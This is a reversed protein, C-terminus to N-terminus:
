PQCIFYPPITTSSQSCTQGVPCQSASSASSDCMRAQTNPDACELAAVCDVSAAAQNNSQGATVCCVTGAPYGAAVCDAAKSCPLPLGGNNSCDDASNDCTPDTTGGGHGKPSPICCVESSPDCTTVGCAIGLDVPPPPASDTGADIKVPPPAADPVTADLLTPGADHTTVPVSTSADQTTVPVSISADTAGPVTVPAEELPSSAAGGCGVAGAGVIGGGVAALALSALTRVVLISRFFPMAGPVVLAAKEDVFASGVTEQADRRLRKQRSHISGGACPEVRVRTWLGARTLAEGEHPVLRPALERTTDLTGAHLAQGLRVPPKARTMSLVADEKERDAEEREDRETLWGGL